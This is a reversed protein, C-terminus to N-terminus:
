EWSEPDHTPQIYDPDDPSLNMRRKLDPDINPDANMAQRAKEQPDIQNDNSSEDSNDNTPTSSGTNNGQSASNENAQKNPRQDNIISDLKNKQKNFKKYLSKKSYSKKSGANNIITVKYKGIRAMFKNANDNVYYKKGNKTITVSNDQVNALKQKTFVLYGMEVYSKNSFKVNRKSAAVTYENFENSNAINIGMITSCGVLTAFCVLIFKKM